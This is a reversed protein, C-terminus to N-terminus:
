YKIENMKIFYLDINENLFFDKLYLEQGGILNIYDM